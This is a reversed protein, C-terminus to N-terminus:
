SAALILLALALFSVYQAATWTGWRPITGTKMTSGEVGIV